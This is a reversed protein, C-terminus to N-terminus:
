MSVLMGSAHALTVQAGAAVIPFFSVVVALQAVRQGTVRKTRGVYECVLLVLIVTAFKLPILGGFGFREIVASAVGNVEVAGYYAMVIATVLIDLSAALVYWCYLDPYLVGREAKASM